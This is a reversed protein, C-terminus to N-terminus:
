SRVILQILTGPFSRQHDTASTKRRRGRRVVTRVWGNGSHVYLEADATEELQELVEDFGYGRRDRTGTVGPEMARRIAEEDTGISQYKPNRTLHERIGIGLDGVALYSGHRYTQATLIGGCPSSSHSSVNGCLEPIAVTLTSYLTSTITKVVVMGQLFKAVDEFLHEVDVDTRFFRVPILVDSRDAPCASSTDLVNVVEVADPIHNYFDMRNLYHALDSDLPAVFRVLSSLDTLHHVLLALQVLGMPEVFQLGSADIVYEEMTESPLTLITRGNLRSPVAMTITM